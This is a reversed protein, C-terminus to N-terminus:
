TAFFLSNHLYLILGVFKMGCKFGVRLGIHINLWVVCNVCVVGSAFSISLFQIKKKKGM